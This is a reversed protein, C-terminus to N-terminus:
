ERALECIKALGAILTVQQAAGDLNHSNFDAWQKDDYDYIDGPYISLDCADGMCQLSFRGSGHMIARCYKSGDFEGEGVAARWAQRMAKVVTNPLEVVDQGPVTQQRLWQLVEGSIHGGTAHGHFDSSCNTEM